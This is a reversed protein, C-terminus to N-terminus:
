WADEKAEELYKEEGNQEREQKQQKESLSILIKAM